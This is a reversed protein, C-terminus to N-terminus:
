GNFDGGFAIEDNFTFVSKVAFCQADSDVACESVRIASIGFGIASKCIECIIAEASCGGCSYPIFIDASISINGTKVSQGISHDDVSIEKLGVAIVPKNLATPKPIDPFAKIVKKNDFFSNEKMEAIIEDTFKEANIM